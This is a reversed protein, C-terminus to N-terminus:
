EHPNRRTEPDRNLSLAVPASSGNGGAARAGHPPCREVNGAGDAGSQLGNCRFRRSLRQSQTEPQFVMRGAKGDGRMEPRSTGFLSYSM